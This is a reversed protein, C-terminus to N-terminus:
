ERSLFRIQQATTEDLAGAADVQARKALAREMRTADCDFWGEFYDLVASVIAPHVSQHEATM